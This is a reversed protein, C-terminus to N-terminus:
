PTVAGNNWVRVRLGAAGSSGASGSSGNAAVGGDGGGQTGFGVGGKSGGSGGAGGGAGSALSCAPQPSCGNQLSSHLKSTIIGDNFVMSGTGNHYVAISPGGAGGGSGGGGGGGAGAGGGGGGGANCCSKTGGNGGTGGIAGTGGTAGSGGAGAQYAVVETSMTISVTSNVAYIGFSGGGSPGGLNNGLGGGGGGGGAGGGGGSASATRGGGGGGGGGGYAGNAGVAGRTPIWVDGITGPQDNAGAGGTGGAGAGGGSGGDAHECGFLGTLSGCGGDGGSAGSAANSGDIGSGSYNGGRGGDGGFSYAPGNTCHTGGAGPSSPGGANSGNNGSCGSGAPGMVNSSGSVGLAPQGAIRGGEVTVTSNDVARLGYTSLGGGGSYQSPLADPSEIYSNKIVVSSNEHVLVGTASPGIGGNVAISSLTLNSTNNRVVVIRADITSDVVLATGTFTLHSITTTATIGDAIMATRNDASGSAPARVTTTGNRASFDSSWGGDVSVGTKVDIHEDYLGAVVQVRHKQETAAKGIAYNISRCPNLSSGCATNDKYPAVGEVYVIDSEVTISALKPKSVNGTNDKATVTVLYVGPATYVHPVAVRKCGSSQNPPPDVVVCNAGSHGSFSNGITPSTGDGWDITYSTLSGEFAAANFNLTISNGKITRLPIGLIDVKPLRPGIPVTRSATHTDCIGTQHALDREVTLVVVASKPASPGVSTYTHTPQELTSSTATRRIESTGPTRSREVGHTPQPM